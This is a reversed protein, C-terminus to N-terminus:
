RRRPRPLPTACSSSRAGTVNVLRSRSAPWRCCGRARRSRKPPAPSTAPRSCRARPTALATTPLSTPSRSRRGLGLLWRPRRDDDPAALELAKEWLRAAAAHSYLSGAREAAAECPARPPSGSSPVANDRPRPMRSPRSTTTPSRTPVIALRAPSRRCGSRPAGTSKRGCRGCSRGIRSTAFSRMSSLRVRSRRRGVLRTQPPHAAKARTAAASGRDGLSRTGCRPCCRGALLGERARLRGPVGGQGRCPRRRPPRRHHRAGLRAGSPRRRRSSSGPRGRAPRPNARDVLMRVFEEAYLPNGTPAASCPRGRKGPCCRRGSYLTSSSTRRRESSRGSRSSAHPAPTRGGAPVGSSSSRGRPAFCSCSSTPPGPSSTSSSTSCHTTPGTFTRSCSCPRGANRRAARHVAEM